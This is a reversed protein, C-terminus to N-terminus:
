FIYYSLCSKAFFVRTSLWPCAIGLPFSDVKHRQSVWNYSESMETRMHRINGVKLFVLKCPSEIDLMQASVSKRRSSIAKRNGRKDIISTPTWGVAIRYRSHPPRVDVEYTILDNSCGVAKALFCVCPAVHIAQQWHIYVLNRLHSFISMIHKQSFCVLSRMNRAIGNSQSYPTM